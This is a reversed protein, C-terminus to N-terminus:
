ISEFAVSSYLGRCYKGTLARGVRVMIAVPAVPIGVEVAGAFLLKAPDGDDEIEGPVIAPIARQAAMITSMAAVNIYM